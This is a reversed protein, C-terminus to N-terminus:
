QPAAQARSWSRCMALAHTHHITIRDAIGAFEAQMRAADVRDWDSEFICVASGTMGPGPWIGPACPHDVTAPEDRNPLASIHCIM